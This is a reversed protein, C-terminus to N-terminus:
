RGDTTTMKQFAAKLSAAGAAASIQAAGGQALVRGQHLVIVTCDKEAEDILHTAWLAALAEDRCLGRVRELLYQRSALDLGATPEDLLLLSPRHLMARAIEVRRRQGASL